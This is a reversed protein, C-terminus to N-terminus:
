AYYDWVGLKGRVEEREGSTAMPRDEMYTFRNRNQQICQNTEIRKPYNKRIRNSTKILIGNFRYILNAKLWIIM